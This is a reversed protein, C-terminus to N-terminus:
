FEGGGELFFFLIFYWLLKLRPIEEKDLDEKIKRLKPKEFSLINKKTKNVLRLSYLSFIRPSVLRKLLEAARSHRVVCLVVVFSIRYTYVTCPVWVNDYARRHQM